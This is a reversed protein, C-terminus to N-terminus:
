RRGEELPPEGDPDGFLLMFNVGHRQKGTESVLLDLAVTAVDDAVPDVFADRDSHMIKLYSGCNECTEAQVKARSAAAAADESSDVGTLSQYALSEESALCSPCKIRVMRWELGCLSCHLYRQGLFEGSSRTISATPRSGCCPCVTEDDIHGFAQGQGQHAERVALLLHTWYVQLAAGILPALALDLGTSLGHLLADAQRDLFDDDADVLRQLSAQAAVPGHCSMSRALGRAVERWQPDLPWDIAPLPPLGMHAAKDIAKADPLAVASMRDLAQQQESSLRALFELYDAMAHDRGLQRYRMEREAFVSARQPWHLFPTEGGGRSVIEEATMVRVTASATM